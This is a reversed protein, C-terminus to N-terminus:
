SIMCSFLDDSDSALDLDKLLHGSLGPSINLCVLGWSFCQPQEQLFQPHKGAQCQPPIAYDPDMQLFVAMLTFSQYTFM